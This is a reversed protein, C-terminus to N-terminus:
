KAALFTDYVGLLSKTILYDGSSTDGTWYGDGYYPRSLVLETDSNIVSVRYWRGDPNTGDSKIYHGVVLQRGSVWNTLTGTVGKDGETFEATDPGDMLMFNRFVRIQVAYLGQIESGSPDLAKSVTANWSFATAEDCLLVDDTGDGDVDVPTGTIILGDDELGEPDSIHPIFWPGTEGDLSARLAADGLGGNALMDVAGRAVVAARSINSSRASAVIGVPFLVLIGLIGVSMILFAVLIEILTFGSENKKFKRM